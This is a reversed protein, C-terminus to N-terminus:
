DNRVITIFGKFVRRNTGFDIVYYYTGEALPLGNLTADWSNDYGKKRYMMRGSKDFIKVENNPYFDIGDIVWKDNIGDGNPSLINTAKVKEYDELVTLTFTESESCGSANTVTVTYTTTERPRVELTASNLGSIISSNTAWVYNTGGTATLFVREGKSIQLGKDSNISILPLANITLTGNVYNFSYNNSVAGGPFLTYNGTPSSSSGTTTVTAKSALINENELYKFGSYTITFVPLRIGQCMQANSATATLTAKTVALSGSTYNINYNGGATLTGQTITYNGVNEGTTRSLAGAFTNGIILTPTFTYTLAPDAEGYIKSNAIATVTIVKKTLVINAKLVLDNYNSGSITATVEQTGVNTLTNNVYSVSTGAPLIGGIALSKAAGDYVYSQSSLTLGTIVAKSISLNAKLVLDNYNSGTITATVEQTGVNTLTNNAYNVSTGAPLAGGIVLSKATGNYVFSAADFTIGTIVAKTISLGATLVLNEYNDGGNINATVTQTGADTRSNTLYSVSAGGPLTGTIALSKATGNYVFSAADFTIGTIVAKTINLGATLVLNEYNDGGNINATVTQTGADTRSNTLYSVSAGGPLTGTIALSKATGNYVFSAADFTIGTIVAKTISLGATLVLNEYNDGGNINATVTQTGADTRSNTLYSVSAGGPLTGTIALFKATGNYVFSAADFTIGTIVAKSISLNAKLVLDNYNSGTITATVEQTGADTRSNALYSVSAGNPLTGTIALSKATGDFVFSNSALTIGTITAPTVTLNATLVLSTYNAGSITATAVQTGVNTQSNNSYAVTTGSPLTGTIALSKATGDYVFSNGTFTLGTITAPSIALNATLVLDTYNAGSITATAVQTGVNTQSNNSYAVTTGSPLTGTIALSKATGDFVFSNGTFTIGTITAPTVTLNATLVLSTYNAGSITATAVQTGVNIQSNNSYAVTTGSPLTGTIALSKAIGDYVFSNGTFTIGTITAPTVTLNATLVLSTYNAGSITATAVQTGLNIQSNNSYAVTAGSPLTGTIVLSKATGDFVFSNGTFTIGTITAPTVTLNATLVLDTYNAGSITATAVQTGVNTQSNNSYAVTTGSPLTGTIALSKATGDYVFSNGTFTLGTITAPSIALNATLVLDTYNAGSVTATVLQTGVNTLTNNAYVVSAGSPLTGTIALSKATGDYVFSNGTFTIGTITAPSVTLNATLVLPTYGTGSVTATVAQTGVNIRSDDLYSVSTGMPPTGIIALSKASGDYVFSEDSLTIGAIVLTTVQLNFASLSASATGDSVSIVIGTTTGVNANTPTGTLAGTATNFSAWSPKNIISFTLADGELDSAVPTFSYAADQAATIGPTGSIVPASNVAIVAVTAAVNPSSTDTGGSATGGDDQLSTITIVRNAETPKISQNVYTMGNVLTQAASLGGTKVLTLTATSGTVAVGIDVGHILSNDTFGNVLPIDTGDFHIVEDSGDTVNTVTVKLMTILQGSEVTSVNTGNFLGVAAGGETFTTTAGTATLIPADNVPTINLSIIAAASTGGDGDNITVRISRTAGNPETTNSNVYTLNSLLAQVIAPTAASNLAIVLDHIDTGGNATRTGILTGGYTINLGSTGIQGGSTGQNRIFLVDETNVRNAIISVTVNGGDFDQSDPDTVTANGGADLLVLASDEIFNLVDGNLNAIVPAANIPATLKFDNGTGGIYSATLLTGNGGATTTGGEAIGSFTGTVADVLNNDIITYSDGQGASYNHTASLTGAVNVTGAVIVQDYGTGATTGNIEIALTSGSNMQLNGNVTIVGPNNNGPALTGRSLVTLTNTSSSAFISGTGGLTASSAVTLGSTGSLTGNVWLKGGNVTTTGTYTNVASLVLTGGNSSKSLNRAGGTESIVGSLTLTTNSSVNFQSSAALTITGSLAANVTGSLAGNSGSAGVGSLTINEAIPTDTVGSSLRLTAGSSITTGGANTGLASNNTIFVQGSTITLDGSFTNAGGLTIGGNTVLTLPGSGSIVGNLSASNADTVNISAASTLSINNAVTISNGLVLGGGGLTISGGVLQNADDIEVLGGTVSLAAGTATSNNGKLKLTGAGTKILTGTGSLAGSIMLTSGSAANVNSSTALNVNGSVTSSGSLLDLAGYTESDVNKGSGSLTLAEAITLGDVLQLVAGSNVTTGSVTTGLSNNHNAILIGASLTTAGTYTNNGSLQLIANTTKTLSGSGSIIGSFNAINRGSGGSISLTGGGAGLVVANSFTTTVPAGPSGGAISASLTGNDLTLTGTSLNSNSGVTLTGDTVSIDGSFGGSNSASTLSLTGSGIISLKGSGALTSSIVANTSAQSFTLNVDSGITITSGSIMVNNAADANITLNEAIALNGALTTTNGLFDSTFILTQTGTVDAAAIAVAESFSVGDSVDITAADLSNTIYIVDSSVIVDATTSSSGDSLIFRIIADGFPTDNQYQIGRVVDRVLTNTANANFSVTLLGNTNTFTGFTTSGGAQLNNGSVSYGLGNFSFVDAALPTSTRQVTLSAGNWTSADLETDTITTNAGADLAVSNGVGPWNVSDGNLNSIVPATNMAVAVTHTAGSTYAAPSANGAADAINTSPNLNVKLTGAGTIGSVTVNVSTGSSASVSAITGTASGTTGVAFDDTSINSVSESFSVTFDMSTAAAAPSGSVVISSVSPVVGDIVINKNAGLSNSAGPSALTLNANNGAADRISSGNLALATTSTYDLDASVDGAQVTYTFTLTSSGTGSTYNITRDTAGTELTLQPTGSAVTVNEGFNVQISIPSGVKYTGNLTSSTISTIRVAVNSVTIGNGTVDAVVVAADAGKAWDEAAALNYTTGGSSSTGNKNLLLNTADKDTASLTLTFSTGSTVEVNQTDTLTYTSGGEGTFTFKNATIDNNAGSRKLLGTGTVVLAGTNADYTASTITPVAVNSVLVGNGTTDAVTLAADAGAAWDEAAALNYTSIDTSLTGNKNLLLNISAKDTASLTLTFSTGSTIEVNGTDTLSYTSGGEGRLTFKNAVIDNAAGNLKKLNTGTVVLVGTSANYTASTVTPAAVGSVTIGNGTLDATAASDAIFGAAGALNYTTGGTSSIGNKNVIQNIAVRDTASLMLSFTTASGIEVNSTNTLTYTSGGEGTLTFKNAVVDNTAGGTATFNTGTVVIVGTTGNYTASSITPGPLVGPEFDIDDIAIVTTTGTFRIEDIYQWAANFTLTGGFGAGVGNKTYTVSGSSDSDGTNIADSAVSSGDRYGTITLNPSTGLGAGTDIEMSAIRFESGDTSTIRADLPGPELTNSADINFILALDYGYPKGVDESTISFNGTPATITSKKGAPAVLSFTAGGITESSTFEYPASVPNDFNNDTPVVAPVVASVNAFSNAARFAKAGVSRRKADNLLSTYNIEVKKRTLRFIKREVRTADPELRLAPFSLGVQLAPLGVTYTTAAGVRLWGTPLLFMTLALPLVRLVFARFRLFGIGNVISLFTLFLKYFNLIFLVKKM